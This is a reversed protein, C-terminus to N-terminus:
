GSVGFVAFVCGLGSPMLRRVPSEAGLLFDVQFCFSEAAPQASPPQRAVVHAM